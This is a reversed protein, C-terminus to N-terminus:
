AATVLYTGISLLSIKSTWIIFLHLRRSNRANPNPMYPYFGDWNKFMWSLISSYSVASLAISQNSQEIWGLIRTQFVQCCYFLSFYDIRLPVWSNTQYDGELFDPFGVVSGIKFVCFHEFLQMKSCRLCRNWSDGALYDQSQVSHSKKIGTCFFWVSLDINKSVEPFVEMQSPVEVIPEFSHLLTYIM